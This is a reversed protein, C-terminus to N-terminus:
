DGIVLICFLSYCHHVKDILRDGNARMDFSETGGQHYALYGNSHSFDYIPVSINPNIKNQLAPSDVQPSVKALALSTSQWQIMCGRFDTCVSFHPLPAILKNDEM